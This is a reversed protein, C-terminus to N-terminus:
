KYGTGDSCQCRLIISHHSLFHWHAVNLIANRTPLQKNGRGHVKRKNRTAIDHGRVVVNGSPSEHWTESVQIYSSGPGSVGLMKPSLIFVTVDRSM